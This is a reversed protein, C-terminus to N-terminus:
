GDAFEAQLRRLSATFAESEKSGARGYTDGGFWRIWVGDVAQQDIPDRHIVMRVLDTTEPDYEDEPAGGAILGIPDWQNM